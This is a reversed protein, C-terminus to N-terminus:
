VGVINISIILLCASASVDVISTVIPIVINDPDLGRKFSALALLVTSSIIVPLLLMSALVFVAANKASEYVSLGRWFAMAFIALGSLLFISIGTLVSVKVNEKLTKGRLESSITGMHLASAIRAGLISSLNGGIGNLIPVMVLVLSGEIRELSNQLTVGAVLGILVCVLLVPYSEGVIRKVSYFTM